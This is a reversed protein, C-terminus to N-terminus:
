PGITYGPIVNGAYTTGDLAHLRHAMDFALYYCSASDATGCGDSPSASEIFAEDVATTPSEAVNQFVAYYCRGGRLQPDRPFDTAMRAADDDNRAVVFLISGGGHNGYATLRNEGAFAADCPDDSIWAVGATGDGYASIRGRYSDEETRFKVIWILGSTRNFGLRMPADAAFYSGDGVASPGWDRYVVSRGFCTTPIPLDPCPDEVVPGGDAPIGGSDSALPTGSDTGGADGSGPAGSDGAAGIGGDAAPHPSGDRAAGGDRSRALEGSCGLIACGIAALAVHKVGM